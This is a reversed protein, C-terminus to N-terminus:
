LHPMLPEHVNLSRSMNVLNNMLENLVDMLQADIM